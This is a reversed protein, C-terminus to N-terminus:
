DDLFMAATRATDTEAIVLANYYRAIISTAESMYRMRMDAPLENWFQATGCVNLARDTYIAYALAQVHLPNAETSAAWAEKIAPTLANWEPMERGDYTKGGTSKAYANYAREGQLLRLWEKTSIVNDTM